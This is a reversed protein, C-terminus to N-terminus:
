KNIPHDEFQAKVRQRIERTVPLASEGFHRARFPKGDSKRFWIGAASFIAGAKTSFGVKAIYLLRGPCEIVVDDGPLIKKFLDSM